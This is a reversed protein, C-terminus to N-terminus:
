ANMQKKKADYMMENTLAFYRDVYADATWKEKFAQYGNQGLEDRLSTNESLRELASLLEADTEYVLGGDSDKIIEPM